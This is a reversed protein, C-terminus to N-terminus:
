EINLSPQSDIFVCWRSLKGGADALKNHKCFLLANHDTIVRTDERGDIFRSCKGLAWVVAWAELHTTHFKTQEKTLKISAYEVVREMGDVVQGLIAGTHMKSADTKIFFHKDFDPHVM